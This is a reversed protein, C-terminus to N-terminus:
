RLSCSGVPMLRYNNLDFRAPENKIINKVRDNDLNITPPIKRDSVIDNADIDQQRVEAEGIPNADGANIGNMAPTDYNSPSVDSALNSEAAYQVNDPQNKYEALQDPALTLFTGLRDKETSLSEGGNDASNAALFNQRPVISTAYEPVYPPTSLDPIRSDSDWEGRRRKLKEWEPSYEPFLDPRPVGLPIHKPKPGGIFLTQLQASLNELLRLLYKNGLEPDKARIEEVLERGYALEYDGVDKINRATDQPHGGPDSYNLLYKVARGIACHDEDDIKPLHQLM